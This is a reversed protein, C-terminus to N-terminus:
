SGLSLVRTRNGDSARLSTSTLPIIEAMGTPPLPTKPPRGGRKEWALDEEPHTPNDTKPTSGGRSGKHTSTETDPRIAQLATELKDAIKVDRREAAHQYRQAAAPSAHGLRAM